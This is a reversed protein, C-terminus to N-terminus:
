VRLPHASTRAQEAPEPIFASGGSDIGRRLDQGGPRQDSGLGRHLRLHGAHREPQVPPQTGARPAPDRGQRGRPLPPLPAEISYVTLFGRRIGQRGLGRRVVRALPCVRTESIDGVRLLTPDTRASAGMSSVVPLGRRVCHRLLAVKPTYSDIADVVHDPGDGLLEDATDDHFFAKVPEVRAGPAVANLLEAVVQAKGRGVDAARAVAHRNLSSWTVDDFDVVRLRRVGARVLAAAAHSGVGGLGFLVVRARQLADFGEDGLLDVTREFMRQSQEM